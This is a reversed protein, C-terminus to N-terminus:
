EKIFQKNIQRSNQELKIVYVGTSLETLDLIVKQSQENKELILRGDISMIKIITPEINQFEITLQDSVPNPFFSVENQDLSQIGVNTINYCASTDACGSQTIIVAYSGNQTPTFSQQQAGSIPQYTACNIWQYTSNTEDASLTFDVQNVVSNVTTVNLSTQIISDCGQTTSLTDSYNGTQTYVHNGIVISDGKCITPNQQQIFAKYVTLDIEIVSDCGTINTLTDTYVGTSNWTYKGSPSIYEHCITQNLQTLPSPTGLSTITTDNTTVCGNADTITVLQNGVALGSAIPSTTGNNWNYSYPTTGGTATVTAQANSQGLCSVQADIVVTSTLESPSTVEATDIVQCGNADTLTLTYTGVFLNNITASTAGNSWAYSYPAVGGSNSAQIAANNDESCAFATDPITLALLNPQTLNISDVQTCGTSETITVTYNGATLQQLNASNNGNSWTYSYTPAVSIKWDYFFYYFGPLGNIAQNITVDNTSNTYPYVASGATRHSTNITSGSLNMRYTGQPLDLNLPLQVANGLANTTQNINVTQIISTGASDLLNVSIVGTGVPYLTISDLRIHNNVTFILGDQFASYTGGSGPISMGVQDQILNSSSSSIQITGNTDGFCLLATDTLISNQITGCQNLQGIEATTLVRDYFRIDDVQGDLERIIANGPNIISAFSWNNVSPLNVDLTDHIVLTDNMYLKINLGEKTVIAHNWEHPIIKQPAEILLDPYTSPANYRAYVVFSSDARIAMDIGGQESGTISHRSTVTYQFDTTNISDAKFWHSITFDNTLDIIANSVHVYQNNDFGEFKLAKSNPGFRDDEYSVTTGSFLQAHHNGQGDQLNLSDFTYNAILGNNLQAFSLSTSALMCALFLIKKM